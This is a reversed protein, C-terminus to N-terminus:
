FGGGVDAGLGSCTYVWCISDGNKLIYSSCGYNPFWDNVKYMWGSEPGVDFEYLNAIGEIYNSAYIATYSFELSIGKERCVRQLVDFVSEGDTFSVATTPLIVGNSPVISKKAEDCQDMNSLITSCSISITCTNGGTSATEQKKPEEDKKGTETKAQAKSPNETSGDKKEGTKGEAVAGANSKQASPDEDKAATEKEEAKAAAQDIKKSESVVQTQSQQVDDDVTVTDACGTCISLILVAALFAAYVKRHTKSWKVM